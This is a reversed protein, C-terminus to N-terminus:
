KDMNNKEKKKQVKYVIKIALKNSVLRNFFITFKMKIGPIIILKNQFMKDIAYRAVYESSLSKMSFQVNAVNNFNTNVPGPCLCSIHVNSKDRRLEEYIALTLKTVYSKTAYYTAMLPGAQFSAASSVNLIYGKNRKKMDKLFLKTLIHVAKINVDIMELEKNLDTETFEGFLGFGANNILIDINDNKCLVYLEKLKSENSLDAVVIKVEGSLEKQIKQLKEKDRAVLVLSYGMSNLYKAINYGIGSSAGTILAKM